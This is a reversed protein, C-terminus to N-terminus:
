HEKSEYKKIIEEYERIKNYAIDLEALTKNQLVYITDDADPSIKGVLSLLGSLKGELWMIRDNYNKHQTVASRHEENVFNM